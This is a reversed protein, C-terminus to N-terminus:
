RPYDSSQRPDLTGGVQRLKLYRCARCTFGEFPIIMPVGPSYEVPLKTEANLTHLAYQWRPDSFWDAAGCIPCAPNDPNPVHELEDM